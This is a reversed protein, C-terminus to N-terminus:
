GGGTGEQALKQLIRVEGDLRLIEQLLQQKEQELANFQVVLKQRNNIAQQLEQEVDM